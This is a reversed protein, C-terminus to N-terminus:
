SAAPKVLTPKAVVDERIEVEGTEGADFYLKM